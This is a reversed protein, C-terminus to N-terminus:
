QKFITHIYSKITNVMSVTMKDNLLAMARAAFQDGKSSNRHINDICIPGILQGGAFQMNDRGGRSLEVADDIYLFDRYQKGESCPFKKDKLCNSIVIPILRNLDQNPGFDQYPRFIIVPFNHKVYLKLLNKSAM